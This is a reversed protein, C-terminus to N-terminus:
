WPPCGQAAKVQYHPEKHTRYSGVFPQRSPVSGVVLCCPGTSSWNRHPGCGLMDRQSRAEAIPFPEELVWLRRLPFQFLPLFSAFQPEGKAVM